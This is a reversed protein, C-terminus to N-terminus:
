LYPTSISRCSYSGLFRGGLARSESKALSAERERELAFWSEAPSFSTVVMAAVVCGTGMTPM